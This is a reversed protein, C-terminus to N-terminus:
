GLVPSVKLLYTPPRPEAEMKWATLLATVALAVLADAVGREKQDLDKQLEAASRLLCWMNM